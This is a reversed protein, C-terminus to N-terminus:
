ILHELVYDEAYAKDKEATIIHDYYFARRCKVKAPNTRNIFGAEYAAITTVMRARGASEAWVISEIGCLKTLFPRVM